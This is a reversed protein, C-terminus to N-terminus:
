ERELSAHFEEKDGYEEPLNDIAFALEEAIKGASSIAQQTGRLAHPCQIGM